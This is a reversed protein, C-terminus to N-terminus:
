PTASDFFVKTPANNGSRILGIAHAPSEKTVRSPMTAAADEDHILLSSVAALVVLVTGVLFALHYASLAGRALAGPDTVGANAAHIASVLVTGLMAVGLAGAVQRQTSYIASARGTDVPTINAYVAAQMPVIAFAMAIGRGFMIARIPWLPTDLGIFALLLSVAAMGLM